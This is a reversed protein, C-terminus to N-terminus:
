ISSCLNCITIFSVYMCMTEKIFPVCCNNCKFFEPIRAIRQFISAQIEFYSGTDLTVTYPDGDATITLVARYTSDPIIDGDINYPITFVLSGGSYSTLVDIDGSDYTANDAIDTVVISAVTVQGITLGSGAWDSIDEFVFNTYSTYKRKLELTLAM